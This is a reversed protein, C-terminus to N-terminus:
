HKVVTGHQERLDNVVAMIQARFNVTLSRIHDELVSDPDENHVTASAFVGVAMTMLASFVAVSELNERPEAYAGITKHILQYLDHTDQECSESGEMWCEGDHERNM